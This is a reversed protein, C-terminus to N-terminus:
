FLWEGGREESMCREVGDIKWYELMGNELIGNKWNNM